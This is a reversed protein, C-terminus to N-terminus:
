VDSLVFKPDKMAVSVCDETETDPHKTSHLYSKTLLHFQNETLGTNQANLTTFFSKRDLSRVEALKQTVRRHTTTWAQKLADYIVNAENILPIPFAGLVDDASGTRMAELLVSRIGSPSMDMNAISVYSPTKVKVRVYPETQDRSNWGVLVIGEVLGESAPRHLFHSVWDDVTRGGDESTGYIKPREMNPFTDMDHISLIEKGTECHRRGLYTMSPKDVRLVVITDPHCLEFIYTYSKDLNKTIEDIDIMESLIHGFSRKQITSSSFVPADYADICNNTAWRWTQLKPHWYLKILSGDVKELCVWEKQEKLKALDIQGLSEQANFFKDFARCVVQFTKSELIIGRCERVIPDSLTSEIMDYTVCFLGEDYKRRITMRYPDKTLLKEVEDM